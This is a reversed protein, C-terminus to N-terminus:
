QEPWWTGQPAREASAQRSGSPTMGTPSRQGSSPQRWGTLYQPPGLVEEQGPHVPVYGSSTEIWRVQQFAPDGLQGSVRIDSSPSPHTPPPGARPSMRPEQPPHASAQRSGAWGQAVAVQRRYAEAASYQQQSSQHESMAGVTTLLILLFGLLLSSLRLSPKPIFGRQSCTKEANTLRIEHCAEICSHANELVHM